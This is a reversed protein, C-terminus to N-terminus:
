NVYKPFEGKNLDIAKSFGGGGGGAWVVEVSLRLIVSESRWRRGTGRGAGLSQGVAHYLASCRWYHSAMELDRWNYTNALSLRRRPPPSRRSRRTSSSREKRRRRTSSKPTSKASETAPRRPPRLVQVYNISNIALANRDSGMIIAIKQGHPPPALEDVSTMFISDRYTANSNLPIFEIIVPSDDEFDAASVLETHFTDLYAEVTGHMHLATVTLKGLLVSNDWNPHRKRMEFTTTEKQSLALGLLGLLCLLVGKVM